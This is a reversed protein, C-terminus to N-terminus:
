LLPFNRLVYTLGPGYVAMATATNNMDPEKFVSIHKYDDEELQKKLEMLKGESPVKVYILYDNKWTAFSNRHELGFQALAHGAQVAKYSKSPLDDRVLVYLKM